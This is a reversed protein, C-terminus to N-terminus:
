FVTTGLLLLAASILVAIGSYPLPVFFAVLGYLFLLFAIIWIVSNPKHTKVKMTGGQFQNPNRAAGAADALAITMKPLREEALTWLMASGCHLRVAFACLVCLNESNEKANKADKRNM